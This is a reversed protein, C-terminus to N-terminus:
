ISTLLLCLSPILMSHLVLHLKLSVNHFYSSLHAIVDDPLLSCNFCSIEDQFCIIIVKCCIFTVTSYKGTPNKSCSIYFLVFFFLNLRLFWCSNLLSLTSLSQGSDLKCRISSWSGFGLEASSFCMCANDSSIMILVNSQYLKM